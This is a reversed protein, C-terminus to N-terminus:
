RKPPAVDIAAGQKSAAPGIWIKWDILHDDSFEVKRDDLIL